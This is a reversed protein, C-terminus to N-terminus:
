SHDKVISAAMPTKRTTSWTRVNRQNPRCPGSTVLLSSKHQLGAPPSTRLDTFELSFPSPSTHVSSPIPLEYSTVPHSAHISSCVQVLPSDIDMEQSVDADSHENGPDAFPSKTPANEHWLPIDTHSAPTIDNPVASQPYEPVAGFVSSM